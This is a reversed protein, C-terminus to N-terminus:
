QYGLNNIMDPVMSWNKNVQANEEKCACKMDPNYGARTSDDKLGAKTNFPFIMM